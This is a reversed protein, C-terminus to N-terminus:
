ISISPSSIGYKKQWSLIESAETLDIDFPYAHPRAGWLELGDFGYETAMQFAYELSWRKFQLSLFSFKM